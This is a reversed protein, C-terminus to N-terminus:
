ETQQGLKRVMGGHGMVLGSGGAGRGEGQRPREMRPMEQRNRKLGLGERWGEKTGMGGRGVGGEEWRKVKGNQGGDGM